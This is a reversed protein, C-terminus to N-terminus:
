SNRRRRAMFGIAGLGALMLAYTEPEPVPTVNLTGSYTANVGGGADTTGMVTLVLPSNFPGLLGPTFMAEFVGTGTASTLAVGNLSASTFDINQGVGLGITVLSATAFVSSSNAFTITDTFPSSDIHTITFGATGNVINGAQNVDNAFAASALAASAAAVLLTKMKMGEGGNNLRFVAVAAVFAVKQARITTTIIRVVVGQKPPRKYAFM